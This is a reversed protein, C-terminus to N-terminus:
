SGESEEGPLGALVQWREDIVPECRCREVNLNVGCTPCLGRCAQECLPKSPGSMVIYQRVAERLDLVYDAGIRFVDSGAPVRVRAGTVPNIEPLFEEEFSMPVECVVDVLCRSCREQLNGRAEMTVLLGRDTRMLTLKGRVDQLLYDDGARLVPEDLEYESVYGLPQRLESLVNLQM